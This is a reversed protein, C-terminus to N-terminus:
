MTKGLTILIVGSVVLVSGLVLRRSIKELHGLFLWSWLLTFLPTTSQLPSIIVVPAMSLAFFSAIVGGAAALGSCFLFVVARKNETLGTKIGRGGNISLGLSGALMAIAAGVLPPALNGVGQRILVSSIGYALGAGIGFARGILSNRRTSM